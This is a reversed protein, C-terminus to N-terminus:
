VKENKIAQQLTSIKIFGDNSEDLQKFSKIISFNSINEQEHKLNEIEKQYLLELEFLKILDSITEYQLSNYATSNIKDLKTDNRSASELPTVLSLYDAYELKGDNDVDFFNVLAKWM